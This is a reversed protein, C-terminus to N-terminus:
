FFIQWDFVQKNAKIKAKKAPLTIIEHTQKKNKNENTKNKKNGVDRLMTSNLM